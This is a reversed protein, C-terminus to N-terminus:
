IAEVLVTLDVYSTAATLAVGSNQKSIAFTIVEGAALAVNAVTLPLAVPAFATINGTGGTTTVATAVTAQSAGASTRKSVTFTATNSAHATVAIPTSVYATIVKCAFPARWHVTETVATGATAADSYKNTIAVSNALNVVARPDAIEAPPKSNLVGVLADKLTQRDTPM